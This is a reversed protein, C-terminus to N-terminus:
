PCAEVNLPSSGLPQPAPGARPARFLALQWTAENSVRALTDRICPYGQPPLLALVADIRRRCERLQERSMPGVSMEALQLVEIRRASIAVRDDAMKHLEVDFGHSLWSQRQAHQKLHALLVQWRACARSAPEDTGPRPPRLLDRLADWSETARPWAQVLHRVCRPADPRVRMLFQTIGAWEVDPIRGDAHLRFVAKLFGRLDDNAVLREMQPPPACALRRKVGEAAEADADMLASARQFIRNISSLM